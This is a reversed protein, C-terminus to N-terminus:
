QSQFKLHSLNARPDWNHFSQLFRFKIASQSQQTYAAILSLKLQFTGKVILKLRLLLMKRYNRLNHKVKKIFQVKRKPSRALRLPERVLHPSDEPSMLRM